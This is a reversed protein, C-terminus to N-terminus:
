FINKVLGENMQNINFSSRRSREEQNGKNKKFGIFELLYNSFLPCLISSIIAIIIISFKIENFGEYEISYIMGFSIAGRIIGGYTYLIIENIEVECIQNLILSIFCISLFWAFFIAVITMLIFYIMNSNIEIVTSYISFYCVGLYILCFYESCFGASEFTEFLTELLVKNEKKKKLKRDLFIIYILISIVGSM